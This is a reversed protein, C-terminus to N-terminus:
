EFIAEILELYVDDDQPVGDIEFASYAFTLNITDIQYQLVAYAYEEGFMLIGGINVYVEFDEGAVVEWEIDEFFDTFAAGLLQDPFDYLSGDYVISLIEDEFSFVILEFYIEFGYPVGDIEIASFEFTDDENIRYQVLANAPQDDFLVGGNVNVYTYGDDAELSEWRIDALVGALSQGLQKTPYFDLTGNKILDIAPDNSLPPVNGSDSPTPNINPIDSGSPTVQGSAPTEKDGGSCATLLAFVLVIALALSLIQKKM